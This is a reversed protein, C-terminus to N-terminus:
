GHRRGAADRWVVRDTAKVRTVIANHRVTLRRSTGNARILRARRAGDAVLLVRTGVQGDRYTGGASGRLLFFDTWPPEPAEGGVPAPGFAPDFRKFASVLRLRGDDLAAWIRVQPTDAILRSSRQAALAAADASLVTGIPRIEDQPHRMPARFIALRAKIQPTADPVPAAAPAPGGALLLTGMAAIGALALPLRAM